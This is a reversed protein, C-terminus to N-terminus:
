ISTTPPWLPVQERIQDLMVGQLSMGDSKRLSGESMPHCFDQM